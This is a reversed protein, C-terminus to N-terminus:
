HRHNLLVKDETFEWGEPKMKQGSNAPQECHQQWTWESGRFWRRRCIIVTRHGVPPPLSFTLSTTSISWLIRGTLDPARCVFAMLYRVVSVTCPDSGPNRNRVTVLWVAVAYKPSSSLKWWGLSVHIPHLHAKARPSSSQHSPFTFGM